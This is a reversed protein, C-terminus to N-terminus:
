NSLISNSTLLSTIIHSSMSHFKITLLFIRTLLILLATYLLVLLSLLFWLKQPAWSSCFIWFIAQIQSIYSWLCTGSSPPWGRPGSDYPGLEKEKSHNNTELRLLVWLTRLKELRTVWLFNHCTDSYDRYEPSVLISDTMGSHLNRSFTQIPAHPLGDLLAICDQIGAENESQVPCRIRNKM